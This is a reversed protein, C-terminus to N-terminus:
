WWRRAPGASPQDGSEQDPVGVTGAHGNFDGVQYQALEVPIDVCVSGYIKGFYEVIPEPHLQLQMALTLARLPSARSWRYSGVLTGVLLTDICAACLAGLPHAQGALCEALVGVTGLLMLTLIALLGARLYTFFVSKPSLTIPLGWHGHLPTLRWPQGNTAEPVLRRINQPHIVVYSQWPVLPIFHLHVFYTVVHFHDPVQDVKGYAITGLM